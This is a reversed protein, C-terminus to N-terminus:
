ALEALVDRVDSEPVDGFTEVHGMQTPLVFRLQGAVTKKDLKM